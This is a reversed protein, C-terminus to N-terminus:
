KAFVIYNESFIKEIEKEVELTDNDLIKDFNQIEKFASTIYKANELDVELFEAIRELYDDQCHLEPLTRHAKL